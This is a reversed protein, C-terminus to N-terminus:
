RGFHRLWEVMKDSDFPRVDIGGFHVRQNRAVESAKTTYAHNVYELLLPLYRKSKPVNLKKSIEGITLEHQQWKAFMELKYEEDKTMKKLVAKAFDNPRKEVGVLKKLSFTREEDDQNDGSTKSAISTHVRLFQRGGSDNQVPNSHPGKTEASTTPAADSSAHLVTVCTAVLVLFRSFGLRM